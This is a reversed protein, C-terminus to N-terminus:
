SEAVPRTSIRVSDLALSNSLASNKKSKSCIAPSALPREHGVHENHGSQLQSSAEHSVEFGEQVDSALEDDAM